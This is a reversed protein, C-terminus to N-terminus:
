RLMILVLLKLCDHVNLKGENKRRVLAGDAIRTNILDSSRKASPLGSSGAYNERWTLVDLNGLRFDM